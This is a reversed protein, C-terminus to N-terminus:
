LGIEEFKTQHYLDSFEAFQYWNPHGLGENLNVNYLFYCVKSDM